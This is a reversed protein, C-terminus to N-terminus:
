ATRRMLPRWGNQEWYFIPLTADPVSNEFGITLGLSAFGRWDNPQTGGTDPIGARASALQLFEEATSKLRTPWVVSNPALAGYYDPVLIGPSVTIGLCASNIRNLGFETCFAACYYFKARSVSALTAFSEGQTGYTRHWTKIFQNGSGVLDDVFVVSGGFGRQVRACAKEPSLIRQQPIGLHRAKRAFVHGSDTVSPEEGTVLTVLVGDLFRSWEDRGMSRGITRISTCFIQDVLNESFYM